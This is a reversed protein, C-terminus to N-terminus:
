WIELYEFRITEVIKFQTGGFILHDWVLANWNRVFTFKLGGHLFTQLVYLMYEAGGSFHHYICIFKWRDWVWVKEKSFFNKLFFNYKCHIYRQHKKTSGPSIWWQNFKVANRCSHLTRWSYFGCKEKNCTSNGSKSIQM